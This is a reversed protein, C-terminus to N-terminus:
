PFPTTPIDCISFDTQMMGLKNPAKESTVKKGDVDFSYCVELNVIQEGFDFVPQVVSAFPKVEWSFGNQIMDDDLTKTETITANPIESNSTDLPKWELSITDGKKLKYVPAALSPITVPVGVEGDRFLRLSSCNILTTGGFDYETPYAPKAPVPVPVAHVNVTIPMCKQENHPTQGNHIAYWVPIAPDNGALEIKDWPIDLPLDDGANETTMTHTKAPSSSDGWYIDMVHGAQVKDYVIVSFTANQGTDTEDLENRKDSTPGTVEPAPLNRNVPDPWDPLDPGVYSFDVQIEHQGSDLAWGDSRSLTYYVQLTQEGGADNDYQSKLTEKPITVPMPFRTDPNVTYPRIDASGWHLTITDVRHVPSLYPPVLAEVPNVGADKLDLLGDDALPVAPEDLAVPLTGLAVHVTLPYSININGAKDQLVYCIYRNGSGLSEFKDSTLPFKPDADPFPGTYVPILGPLEAEEPVHDEFYVAIRDGTAYDSYKELNYTISGSNDTLLKETITGAPTQTPAPPVGVGDQWPPITDKIMIYDASTDPGLATTVHYNFAFTGNAPLNQINLQMDFPYTTGPPLSIDNGLRTYEGPQGNTMLAYQAFCTAGLVAGAPESPIQVELPQQSRVIAAKLTGDDIDAFYDNAKPISYAPLANIGGKRQAIKKRVHQRNKDSM